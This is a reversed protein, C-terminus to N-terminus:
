INRFSGIYSLQYLLAKTFDAQELIPKSWLGLQPLHLM